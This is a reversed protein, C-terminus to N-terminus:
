QRVSPNKSTQHDSANRRALTHGRFIVRSHGFQAAQTDLAKRLPGDGVVVLPIDTRVQNWANLLTPLGKESTFRGVFIVYEGPSTRPGPDPYVFHPKVVVEGISPRWARVEQPRVALRRHLLRSQSDVNSAPSPKGPGSRVRRYRAQVRSFLPVEPRALLSHETCEECIKGDRLFTGQPCLLRYNHLTQVVPVDQDACAWYISPSIMVFTNHVHVM